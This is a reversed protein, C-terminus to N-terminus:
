TSRSGDTAWRRVPPRWARRCGGIGPASSGMRYVAVFSTATARCSATSGSRQQDTWPRTDSGAASSGGAATQSRTTWAAQTSGSARPPARRRSACSRACRRSRRTGDLRGHLPLAGVSWIGHQEGARPRRRLPARDRGSGEGPWAAKLSRPVGRQYDIVQGDIDLKFRSAQELDSVTVTFELQPAGGSQFFLRRIRQAAEFQSLMQASMGAAGPRSAWPSRTTDVLKELNSKFFADFVGGPGFLRGFDALPVDDLSGEAFPYRGTSAAERCEAYVEQRYRALLDTTAGAGAASQTRSGLQRSGPRSPPRCCRRM